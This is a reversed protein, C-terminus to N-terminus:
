NFLLKYKSDKKNLVGIKKYVINTFYYNSNWKKALDEIEKDGLITPSYVIFKISKNKHDTFFIIYEIIQDKKLNKDYLPKVKM